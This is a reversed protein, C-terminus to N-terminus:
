SVLVVSVQDVDLQVCILWFFLILRCSISSVKSFGMCDNELLASRETWAEHENGRHLQRCVSRRQAYTKSVYYAPAEVTVIM